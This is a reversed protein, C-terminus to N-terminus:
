DSVKIVSTITLDISSLDSRPNRMDSHGPHLPMMMRVDRSLHMTDILTCETYSDLSLPFTYM